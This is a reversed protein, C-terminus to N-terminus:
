AATRAPRKPRSSKIPLLTREVAPLVKEMHEILRQLAPTLTRDRRHVLGISRRASAAELPRAVLGRLNLEPLAVRPLIAVGLGRRALAAATLMNSVDYRPVLSAPVTKRQMAREFQSRASSGKSLLIWEHPMLDDWTMNKVSALPHDPVFVACFYDDILARFALDPAPEVLTAIVCEVQNTRLMALLDHNHGERIQVRLAPHSERLSELAPALIAFATSPLAGIIITGRKAVGLDLLSRYAEEIDTLPRQIRALFDEGASTLAIARTSREFLRVGLTNELDQILVTFSSQTVGLQGAAHTFSGSDVALLFAKIPRYKINMTM